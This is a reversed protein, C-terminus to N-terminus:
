KRSRQKSKRIIYDTVASRQIRHSNGVRFSEIENLNILNYATNMGIKLLEALEQVTLIEGYYDDYM